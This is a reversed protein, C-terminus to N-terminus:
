FFFVFLVFCCVCSRKNEVVTKESNEERTGIIPFFLILLCLLCVVSYVLLLLFVFVFCFLLFFSFSRKRRRSRRSGPVLERMDNADVETALVGTRTYKRLRMSIQTGDPQKWVFTDGPNHTRRCQARPIGEVEGKVGDYWQGSLAPGEPDTLKCAAPGWGPNSDDKHNPPDFEVIHDGKAATKFTWPPCIQVWELLTCELRGALWDDDVCLCVVSNLIFTCSLGVEGDFQAPRRNLLIEGGPHKIILYFVKDACAKFKM